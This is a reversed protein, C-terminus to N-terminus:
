GEAVNKKAAEVSAKLAALLDPIRSTVEPEEDRPVSIEGETEAKERILDLIQERQEDRYRSPDWNSALVGILKEAMELEREPVDAQVPLGGVEKLERVEDAFFLTELVLVDDMPRIAALYPKSRLVFRAIGVKGSRRMAALLLAYPKEAAAGRDPAVYYSKDFYVPDIQELGVFDEIDISRSPEPQLDRLEEPSVMVFRDPAVEFGKVVDEYAVGRVPSAQRTPEELPQPPETALGPPAEVVPGSSDDTPALGSDADGAGGEEPWGAVRQYRVRKGTERDFQHFRVDRPTTATYLKVPISVLGFSITGSWVARAM